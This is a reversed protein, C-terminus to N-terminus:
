KDTGRKGRLFDRVVAVGFYFSAVALVINGLSTASMWELLWDAWMPDYWYTLAGLVVILVYVSILMIALVRRTITRASSETLSQEVFKLQTNVLRTTIEAREQETLQQEDIWRGIGRVSADVLKAGRDVIKPASLLSKIWSIM